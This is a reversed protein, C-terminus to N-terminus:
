PFSSAAPALASAPLKISGSTTRVQEFGSPTRLHSGYGPTLICPLGQQLRDPHLVGFLCCPASPQQQQQQQQQQGPAASAVSGPACPVTLLAQAVQKLQRNSELLSNFLSASRELPLQQPVPPMPHNPAAIGHVVAACLVPAFDARTASGFAATAGEFSPTLEPFSPSGASGASNISFYGADSERSLLVGSHLSVWNAPPSVCSSSSM